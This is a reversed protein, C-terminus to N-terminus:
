GGGVFQLLEVQSGPALLCQGFDAKKVIRGDVEAVIKSQNLQRQELLATLTSPFDHAEFQCPKGNITLTPM